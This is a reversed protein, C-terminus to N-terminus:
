ADKSDLYSKWEQNELKVNVGLEKKWMSAIAVALKKHNESTNYLLSFELPHEKTYGAEKLLRKAEAVREKQSLKGYAPVEPNFGATIEPTLFYAPKQGQGLIAKT